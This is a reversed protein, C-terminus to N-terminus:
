IRASRNYAEVLQNYDRFLRPPSGEAMLSSGVSLMTRDGACYLVHDRIHRILQKATVLDDAARM